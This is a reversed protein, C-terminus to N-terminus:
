SLGFGVSADKLSCKHVKRDDMRRGIHAGETLIYLKKRYLFEPSFRPLAFYFQRILHPRVNFVCDIAQIKGAFLQAEVLVPQGNATPLDLNYLVNGLRSTWIM